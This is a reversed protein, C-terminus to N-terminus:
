AAGDVENTYAVEAAQLAEEFDVDLADSLHLLDKLLDEFVSEPCVSGGRGACMAYHVLARGAWVAAAEVGGDDLPHDTARSLDVITEAYM